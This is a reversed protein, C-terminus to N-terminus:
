PALAISQLKWLTLYKSSSTCCYPPLFLLPRSASHCSLIRFSRAHKCRPPLEQTESKRGTQYKFAGLWVWFIWLEDFSWCNRFHRASICSMSSPSVPMPVLYFPPNESVPGLAAKGPRGWLNVPQDRSLFQPLALVIVQIIFQIILCLRVRACSRHRGLKGELYQNLGCLM